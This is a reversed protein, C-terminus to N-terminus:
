LRQRGHAEAAGVPGEQRRGLAPGPRAPRADPDAGLLRRRPRPADLEREGRAREDPLAPILISEEDGAARGRDFQDVHDFPLVPRRLGGGGEGSGGRRKAVRAWGAGHACPRYCIPIKARDGAIRVATERESVDRLDHQRLALADLDDRNRQLTLQQYSGGHIFDFVVKPLRRRAAAELDFVSAIVAM